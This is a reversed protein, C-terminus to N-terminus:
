DPLTPINNIFSMAADLSLPEAENLLFESPLRDELDKVVMEMAESAIQSPQSGPKAQWLLDMQTEHDRKLEQAFYELTPLLRRAKRLKEHIEPRQQLLSLVITKYLMTTEKPNM